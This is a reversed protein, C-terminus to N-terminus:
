GRAGRTATTSSSSTSTTSMACARVSSPLRAPTDALQRAYEMARGRRAETWGELYKLKVGLVAGQVGDM